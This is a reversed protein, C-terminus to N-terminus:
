KGDLLNSRILFYRSTGKGTKTLATEHGDVLELLGASKLVSICDNLELNTDKLGKAMVKTLNGPLVSLYEEPLNKLRRLMLDVRGTSDKKTQQNGTLQSIEQQPKTPSDSQKKKKDNDNKGPESKSQSILVGILSEVEQDNIEEEGTNPLPKKNPASVEQIQKHNDQKNNQSEAGKIPEESKENNKITVENEIPSNLNTDAIQQYDSDETPQYNAAYDDDYQNITLEESAGDSERTSISGSSANERGDDDPVENDPQSKENGSQKPRDTNKLEELENKVEQWELEEKVEKEEKTVEEEHENICLDENIPKHHTKVFLIEPRALKISELSKKEKSDVVPVSIEYLYGDFKNKKIVGAELLIDALIENTNPIFPCENVRLEQQMDNGALPWVLFVGDKGHWIRGNEDNPTWRKKQVLHRMADILWPELHMGALPKGYRDAHSWEDREMIKYRVTDFINALPNSHDKQDQLAAYLTKYIAKEGAAFIDSQEKQIAKGMMIYITSRDETENWRIHYRDLKNNVLWEYLLEGGPRWEIGVDEAYVSIKSLAAIAECFLGNLFAAHAWLSEEEKRIEPTSRTLIRREAYRISFLSVELCFAFLGGILKFHNKESAPLLHTMEALHRIPSMVKKEVEDKNHAGALGRALIIQNIMEKNREILLEVPIVPIGLPFGPLRQSYEDFVDLNPEKTKGIPTKEFNLNRKQSKTKKFFGAIKKIM